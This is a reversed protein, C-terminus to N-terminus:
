INAPMDVIDGRYVATCRRRDSAQQAKGKGQEDTFEANDQSRVSKYYRSDQLLAAGRPKQHFSSTKQQARCAASTSIRRVLATCYRQM